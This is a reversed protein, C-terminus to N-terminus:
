EVKGDRDRVKCLQQTTVKYKFSDGICVAFATCQIYMYYLYVWLSHLKSRHYVMFLSKINNENENGESPTMRGPYQSVAFGHCRSNVCM